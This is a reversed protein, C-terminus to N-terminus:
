LSRAAWPSWLSEKDFMLHGASASHPYLIRCWLLPSVSFLIQEVTFRLVSSDVLVPSASLFMCCSRTAWTQHSKSPPLTQWQTLTKWLQMTHKETPSSWVSAERTPWLMLMPSLLVTVASSSVLAVPCLSKEAHFHTGIFMFYLM